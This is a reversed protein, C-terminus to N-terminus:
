GPSAADAPEPKEKLWPKWTVASCAVQKKKRNRGHFSGCAMCLSSGVKPKPADKYPCPTVCVRGAMLEYSLITFKEGDLEVDEKEELAALREAKKKAAEEELRIREKEELDRSLMDIALQRIRDTEEQTMYRLRIGKITRGSAIRSKISSIHKELTRAAEHIAPFITEVKGDKEMIVPIGKKM